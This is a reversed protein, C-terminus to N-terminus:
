KKPGEDGAKLETVGSKLVDRFAILTIYLYRIVSIYIITRDNESEHRTLRAPSAPITISFYLDTTEQCRSSDRLLIFLYINKM